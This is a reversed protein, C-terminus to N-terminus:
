FGHQKLFLGFVLGSLAAIAHILRRTTILQRAEDPPEPRHKDQAIGGLSCRSQPLTLSLAAGSTLLLPGCAAVLPWGQGPRMM